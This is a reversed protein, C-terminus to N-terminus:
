LKSHIVKNVVIPAHYIKQQSKEVSPNYQQQYLNLVNSDDFKFDEQSLTDRNNNLDTEIKKLADITKTLMPMTDVPKDELFLATACCLALVSLYGGIVISGAVLSFMDKTQTLGVVLAALGTACASM